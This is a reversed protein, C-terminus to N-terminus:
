LCKLHRLPRKRHTASDRAYLRSKPRRCDQRTCRERRRTTERARPESWRKQVRNEKKSLLLTLKKTQLYSSQAKSNEGKAETNRNVLKKKRKNQKSDIKINKHTNARKLIQKNGSHEDDREGGVFIIRRVADNPWAIRRKTRNPRM